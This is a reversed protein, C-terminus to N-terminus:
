LVQQPRSVHNSLKDLDTQSVPLLVGQGIRINYFVEGFNDGIVIRFNNKIMLDYHQPYHSHIYSAIKYRMGDDLKFNNEIIKLFSNPAQASGAMTILHKKQIDSRIDFYVPQQWQHLREFYHVAKYDEKFPSYLYYHQGNDIGYYQKVFYLFHQRELTDVINTTLTPFGKFM